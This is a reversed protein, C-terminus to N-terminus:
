YKTPGGKVRIVARMRRPVTEILNQITEASIITWTQMLKAGLCQVSQPLFSGGRLRHELIDWLNEIPNLDARQPPWNMHSFSDKHERFWNQIILARHSKANDDQFIGTGDLFFFDM